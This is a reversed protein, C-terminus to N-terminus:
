FYSGMSFKRSEVSDIKPNYIPFIWLYLFGFTDVMCKEVQSTDAVYIAEQNSKHEKFDKYSHVIM